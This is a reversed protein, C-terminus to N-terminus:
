RPSVTSLADAATIGAKLASAAGKLMFADSYAAFDLLWLNAPDFIGQYSLNHISFLIKTKAFFEERRRRARMEISGFGCPWDNCHLINPAEDFRRLLAIAARSLFAFREFDDREGYIKGRDFYLGAEILYTPAKLADSKWVRVRLRKSRWEVELDDIFIGSLLKRDNKKCASSPM